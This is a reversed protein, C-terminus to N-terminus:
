KACEPWKGGCGVCIARFQKHPCTCTDDGDCIECGHALNRDGTLRPAHLVLDDPVTKSQPIQSMDYEKQKPTDMYLSKFCKTWINTTYRQYVVGSASEPM